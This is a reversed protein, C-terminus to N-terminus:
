LVTVLSTGASDYPKPLENELIVVDTTPYLIRANYVGPISMVREAIRYLLVNQGIRLDSIYTEINTRVTSHLTTEDIGSEATISIVISVQRITPTDVYIIVGASAIGPYNVSDDPDGNVTKQALSFIGTLNTYHGLVQTNTPVGSGYYMLESNTRNLFYDTGEIRRVYSGSSNDFVQYSNRLLPWNSFQFFNQGEEALPLVDVLLVEDDDAHSKTTSGNVTLITATKSTYEVLEPDASDPSVLVYGASPFNEASDVTLVTSGIGHLGNLQSSAMIVRSPIFGSGDDIYLLHEETTFNEVLNATVIRQGTDADELGLIGSEIAKITGRSLSSIHDQIRLRFEDDTERDRGNSAATTNTVGAGTFPAAGVFQTIRNVGINGKTGNVTAVANVITSEYNGAVLTAKEYTQFQIAASTASAPVQVQKGSSIDQDSGTVEAVRDGSSHDETLAGVTLTDTLVNNNTVSVDEAAATGEGIRVTYPYGSIPFDSSDDLVISTAGIAVDYALVSKVLSENTFKVKCVAPAPLLRTLNFDAAREDLGVGTAKRYSFDELLQVMQYYQEDDELAAAELISRIVSGVSFDTLTTRSRVHSIMDMLITDFVRPEFAM